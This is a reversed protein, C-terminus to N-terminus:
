TSLPGGLWPKLEMKLGGIYIIQFLEVVDLISSALNVKCFFFRHEFSPSDQMHHDLSMYCQFSLSLQLDWDDKWLLSTLITQIREVDTNEVATM